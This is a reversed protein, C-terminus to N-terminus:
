FVVQDQHQFLGLRHTYIEAEVLGQGLPNASLALRHVFYTLSPTSTMSLIIEFMINTQGPTINKREFVTKREVPPPVSAWGSLTCAGNGVGNGTVLFQEINGRACIVGFFPFHGLQIQAIPFPEVLLQVPM